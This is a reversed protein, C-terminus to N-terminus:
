GLCYKLLVDNPAVVDAGENLIKCNARFQMSMQEIKMQEIANESNYKSSQWKSKQWQEIAM